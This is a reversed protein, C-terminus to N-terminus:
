WTWWLGLAVLWPTLLFVALRAPHRFRLVPKSTM